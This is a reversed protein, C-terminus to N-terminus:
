GLQYSRGDPKYLIEVQEFNMVDWPTIWPEPVGAIQKPIEAGLTDRVAHWVLKSCYFSDTNELGFPSMSYPRGLYKKAANVLNQNQAPSMNKLRGHWVHRRRHAKDALFQTYRRMSVGHQTDKPLTSRDPTADIVWPVGERMEILAVHGVWIDRDFLNQQSALLPENETLEADPHDVGFFVVEDDRRPWILDGTQFTQPDPRSLKM